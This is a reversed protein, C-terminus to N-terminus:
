YYEIHCNYGNATEKEILMPKKMKVIQDPNRPNYEPGFFPNDYQFHNRPKLIINMKSNIVNIEAEEIGAFKGWKLPPLSAAKYRVGSPATNCFHELDKATKFNKVETKSNTSKNATGSPATISDITGTVSNLADDLACGTFTLALITTLAMTSLKM